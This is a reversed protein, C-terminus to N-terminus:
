HKQTETAFGKVVFNYFFSKTGETYGEHIETATSNRLLRLRKCCSCWGQWKKVM